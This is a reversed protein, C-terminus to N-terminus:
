PEPTPGSRSRLYVFWYVIGVLVGGGVINGLTVPILNAVLGTGDLTPYATASTGAASWFAGDAGLKLMLGLPIFYMNAVSHEFGAAVFAAVPLVVAAIKDTVSRASMSLWVALCVLVNCLIGLIFAQFPPLGAKAAAIGLATRGVAGDAMLLHGSLFVLAATGVAGVLNGVYVILWARLMRVLRLRGSAVAMVMLTDGTFLEAGGVVVLMLGLSFSLGALLRRLGFPIAESGGTLVVTSLMAGFAIFAGALVALMLLGPVDRGAKAAGIAEAHRAVADPLLAALGAPADGSATRGEASGEAFPQRQM